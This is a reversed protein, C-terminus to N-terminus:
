AADLGGWSPAKNGKHAIFTFFTDPWRMLFDIVHVYAAAALFTMIMAQCQFLTIKPVVTFLVYM